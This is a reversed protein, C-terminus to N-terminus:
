NSGICKQAPVIMQMLISLKRYRNKSKEIARFDPRATGRDTLESGTISKLLVNLKEAPGLQWGTSNRSCAARSRRSHCPVPM